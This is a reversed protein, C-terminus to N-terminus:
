IHPSSRAALLCPLSSPLHAATPPIGQRSYLRHIFPWGAMCELAQCVKVAWSDESHTYVVIKAGILRLHSLLELLGPRLMGRQMYHVIEELGLGRQKGEPWRNKQLVYRVVM